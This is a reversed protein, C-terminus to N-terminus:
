ENNKMEKKLEKLRKQKEYCEPCATPRSEPFDPNVKWGHKILDQIFDYRSQHFDSYVTKGCEDCYMLYCRCMELKYPINFLRKRLKHVNIDTERM